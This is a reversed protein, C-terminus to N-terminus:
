KFRDAADKFGATVRDWASEVGERIDEWANEGANELDELKQKLQARQTELNEIEANLKIRVDARAASLKAKLIALNADWEDLKAHMKQLYADKKSM